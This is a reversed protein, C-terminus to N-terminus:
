VFVVPNDSKISSAIEADIGEFLCREIFSIDWIDHAFYDHMGPNDYVAHLRKTDHHFADDLSLSRKDWLPEDSISWWFLTELTCDRTTLGYASALVKMKEFADGYGTWSTDDILSYMVRQLADMAALADVPIAFSGLPTRDLRAVFERSAKEVEAPILETM